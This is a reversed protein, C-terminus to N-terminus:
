NIFIMIFIDYNGGLYIVKEFEVVLFDIFDLVWLFFDLFEFLQLNDGFKVGFVVINRCLEKIGIM